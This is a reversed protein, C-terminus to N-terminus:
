CTNGKPPHTKMEILKEREEILKLKYRDIEEEKSKLVVDFTKSESHFSTIVVHIDILKFNCVKM